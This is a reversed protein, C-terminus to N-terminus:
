AAELSIDGYWTDLDAKLDDGDTMVGVSTVPGPEEGFARRFDEAVNRSYALWRGARAAGSEVVMYKIRGTRAYDVVAGVPLQADWVYMLTAFPLHEGSILHVLEILARDKWSLRTEDGGFGIAVRAPSDDTDSDKVCMGPPVARTRWSWHLMPTAHADADVRSRAGSAGHGTAHLARRGDIEGVRYDTRPLDRRLVLDEWDRPLKGLPGTSFAPVTRPVARPRPPATACGALGLATLPVLALLARRAPDPVPAM